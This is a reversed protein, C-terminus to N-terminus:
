VPWANTSSSSSDLAAASTAAAFRLVIHLLAFTSESKKARCFSVIMAWRAARAALAAPFGDPPPVHKRAVTDERHLRGENLELSWTSRCAADCVGLHLLGVNSLSTEVRVAWTSRGVTPLLAGAAWPLKQGSTGWDQETLTLRDESITHEVMGEQVWCLKLAEAEAPVVGLRAHLAKCTQLLRLAAPVEMALAHRAVKLLLDDPLALLDFLRARAAISRTVAM